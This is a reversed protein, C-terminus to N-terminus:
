NHIFFKDKGFLVFPCTSCYNQENNICKSIYKKYFYVHKMFFLKLFLQFKQKKEIVAFRKKM